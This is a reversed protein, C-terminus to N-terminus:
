HKDYKEIRGELLSFIKTLLLVIFFYTIGMIIYVFAFDYTQTAINKFALTLDLQAVFGVVSTEKILSVIENCLSPFCNKIAQPMVIKTMSVKYSLGLSRAAELQGKPVANVGGRLIESVYAGSNIGFTIISILISDGKYSAFIVFYFILLQVMIPTGRFIAKYAKTLCKLITIILNESKSNEILCILFGILLGMIFSSFTIILTNLLGKLISILNGEFNDIFLVKLENFNIIGLIIVAVILISILVIEVYKEKNIKKM